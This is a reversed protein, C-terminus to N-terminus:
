IGRFFLGIKSSSIVSLAPPLSCLHFHCRGGQVLFMWLRADSGPSERPWPEGPRALHIRPPRAPDHELHYALVVAEPPVHRRVGSPHLWTAAVLRALDPHERQLQGMFEDPVGHWVSLYDAKVVPNLLEFLRDKLERTPESDEPQVRLTRNGLALHDILWRSRAMEFLCLGEFRDECTTTRWAALATLIPYTFSSLARRVRADDITELRVLIQQACRLMEPDWSGAGDPLESRATALQRLAELTLLIIGPDGSWFDALNVRCALFEFRQIALQNAETWEPSGRGYLRLARLELLWLPLLRFAPRSDREPTAAHRRWNRVPGGDLLKRCQTLLEPGRDGLEHWATVVERLLRYSAVEDPNHNSQRKGYRHDCCIWYCLWRDVQAMVRQGDRSRRFEDREMYFMAPLLVRLAAYTRSHLRNYMEVPFHVKLLRRLPLRDRSDVAHSALTQLDQLPPWPVEGTLIHPAQQRIEDYYDQEHEELADLYDGLHASLYLILGELHSAIRSFQEIRHAPTRAAPAPGATIIGHAINCEGIRLAWSLIVDRELAGTAQALELVQRVVFAECPPLPQPWIPVRKFVVVEVYRAEQTDIGHGSFDEALMMVLDAPDTAMQPASELLRHWLTRFCTRDIRSMEELVPGIRERLWRAMAALRMEDKFLYRVLADKAGYESEFEGRDPFVARTVVAPLQDPRFRSLVTSTLLAAQIEEVPVALEPFVARFAQRLVSLIHEKEGPRLAQFATM